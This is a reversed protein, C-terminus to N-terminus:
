MYTLYVSDFSVACLSGGWGLGTGNFFSSLMWVEPIFWGGFNVGRYFPVNALEFITAEKENKLDAAIIGSKLKPAEMAKLYHRSTASDYTMALYRNEGRGCLILKVKSPDNEDVRRRYFSDAYFYSSAKASLTNDYDVYLWKGNLSKWRFCPQGDVSKTEDTFMEFTSSQYRSYTEGYVLKHNPTDLRVHVNENGNIAKFRVKIGASKPKSSMTIDIMNQMVLVIVVLPVVILAVTAVFLARCTFITRLAQKESKLQEDSVRTVGLLGSSETPAHYWDNSSNNKTIIDSSVGNKNMADDTKVTKIYHEM